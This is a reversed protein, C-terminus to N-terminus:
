SILGPGYYGALISVLGIVVGLWINKAPKKLYFLSGILLIYAGSVVINYDTHQYYNATFFAAVAALGAYINGKLWLALIVCLIGAVLFQYFYAPNSLIYVRVLVLVFFPIGGLAILDRAIDKMVEERKM